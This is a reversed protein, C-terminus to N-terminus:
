PAPAEKPAGPAWYHQAHDYPKSYPGLRSRSVLYHKGQERWAPHSGAWSGEVDISHSDTEGGGTSEASFYHRERYPSDGGGGLPMSGLFKGVFMDPPGTVSHPDDGRGTPGGRLSSKIGM